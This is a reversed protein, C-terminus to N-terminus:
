LKPMKLGLRQHLLFWDGMLYREEWMSSEWKPNEQKHFYWHVTFSLDKNKMVDMTAKYGAIVVDETGLIM